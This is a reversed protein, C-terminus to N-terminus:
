NIIKPTASLRLPRAVYIRKMAQFFTLLTMSCTQENLLGYLSQM